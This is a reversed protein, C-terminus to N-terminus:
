FVRRIEKGGLDKIEYISENELIHKKIDGYDIEKFKYIGKAGDRIDKEIIRHVDSFDILIAKWEHIKAAKYSEAAQFLSDQMIYEYNYDLSRVYQSYVRFESLGKETEYKGYFFKHFRYPVRMLQEVYHAYTVSKSLEVGLALQKSNRMGELYGFPSNAGFAEQNDMQCLLGAGKGWVMFSYLPHRTRKFERRHELVFNNLVGVKSKTKAPSFPTGSCYDWNYMPFLLTGNETVIAQLTDILKDLFMEREVVTKVGLEKRASKLLQMIDSSVYVIDENHMGMKELSYKVDNYYSNLKDQLM